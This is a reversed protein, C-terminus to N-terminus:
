IILITLFIHVVIGLHLESDFDPDNDRFFIM